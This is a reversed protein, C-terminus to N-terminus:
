RARKRRAAGIEANIAQLSLRDRGTKVSRVRMELLGLMARARRVSTLTRELNAESAYSLVGVPRGKSTVVMDKEQRLERWIQASKSRLDRVSITKM